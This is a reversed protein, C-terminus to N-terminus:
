RGRLGEIGHGAIKQESAGDGEAKVEGQQEAIPVGVRTRQRRGRAIALIDDSEVQGSRRRIFRLDELRRILM